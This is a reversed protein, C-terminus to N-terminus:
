LGGLATAYTNWATNFAAKQSDFGGICWMSLEHSGFNGATGGTNNAFLYVERSPFTPHSNHTNGNLYRTTGRWAELTSNNKRSFLFTGDFGAPPGTIFTYSGITNGYSQMRLITSGTSSNQVMLQPETVVGSERAGCIATANQWGTDGTHIHTLIQGYSERYNVADNALNYGTNIYGNTGNGKMGENATFDVTGNIVGNFQSTDAWNILAFDSDGDGAFVYFIDLSDWIGATKLDAVLQNQDDQVATSPLTYGQNTAYTLVANYEDEYSNACPPCSSGGCDVGTEDGNQIGDSCTPGCSAPCSGGCDVGTEDGNQIGDSCTPVGTLSNGLNEYTWYNTGDYWFDQILSNKLNISGIANSDAYLFNSPFTVTDNLGVNTFLLSYEAAVSAPPNSAVIEWRDRTDMNVKFLGEEQQNWDYRLTLSDNPIQVAAYGSSGGSSTTTFELATGGANVRVYKGAEGSLSGPTDTLDTFTSAGGGSPPNVFELATEGTNVRVYQGGQGTYSGPTDTLSTFATSGGSTGSETIIYGNSDFALYGAPTGTFSSTTTYQNLRAQGNALLELKVTADTGFKLKGAALNNIFSFDSDTSSLFGVRGLLSTNRGRYFELLPTACQDTSCSDSLRMTMNPDYLHFSAGITTNSFDGIGLSGRHYNNTSSSSAITSTNEVQFIGGGGGGFTSTNTWNNIGNTWSQVYSDGDVPPATAAMNYSDMIRFTGNYTRLLEVYNPDDTDISGQSLIIPEDSATTANGNRDSTIMISANHEMTMANGVVGSGVPENFDIEAVNTASNPGLGGSIRDADTIAFDAMDLNQEALHNGLNDNGPAPEWRQGVTAASNYLYMVNNITDWATSCQYRQDITQMDLILDPDGTTKCVAAGGVISQAQLNATILLFVFSTIYKYPVRLM